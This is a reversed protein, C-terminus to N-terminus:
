DLVLSWQSDSKELLYVQYGHPLEALLPSTETPKEYLKLKAEKVLFKDEKLFPLPSNACAMKFFCLAIILKFFNM